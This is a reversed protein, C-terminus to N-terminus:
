HRLYFKVIKYFIYGIYLDVIIIALKAIVNCWKLVLFAHEDNTVNLREQIEFIIQVTEFILLATCVIIKSKLHKKSMSQCEEASNSELKIKVDNVELVFYYIGFWELKSFIDHLIKM